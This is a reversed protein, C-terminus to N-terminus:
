QTSPTAVEDHTASTAVEDHTAPTAVEDQAAPTAVEHVGQTAVEHAAPTAVEDHAAATVPPDIPHPEFEPENQVAFPEADYREFKVSAAYLDTLSSSSRLTSKGCDEPAFQRGLLIIESARRAKPFSVNVDLPDDGTADIPKSYYSKWLCAFCLLFVASTVMICTIAILASNDALAKSPHADHVTALAEQNDHPRMVLKLFRM